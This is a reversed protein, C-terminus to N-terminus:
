REKRLEIIINGKSLIVYDGDLLSEIQNDSIEMTAHINKQKMNIGKRM